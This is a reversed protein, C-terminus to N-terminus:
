KREKRSYHTTKYHLFLQLPNEFTLSCTLCEYRGFTCDDALREQCKDTVSGGTLGEDESVLLNIMNNSPNKHFRQHM